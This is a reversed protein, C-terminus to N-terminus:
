VGAGPCTPLRVSTCFAASALTFSHAADCTFGNSTLFCTRCEKRNHARADSREVRKPICLFFIIHHLVVVKEQTEQTCALEIHRFGDFHQAFSNYARGM